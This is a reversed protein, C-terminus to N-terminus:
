AAKGNRNKNVDKGGEMLRQWLFKIQGAPGMKKKWTEIFVSCRVCGIKTEQCPSLGLIKLLKYEKPTPQPKRPSMPYVCFMVEAAFPCIFDMTRKGHPVPEPSVLTTASTDSSIAPQSAEISGSSTIATNDSM